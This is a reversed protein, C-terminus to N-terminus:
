KGEREMADLRAQWENWSPAKDKQKQQVQQPANQKVYKNQIKSVDYSRIKKANEEGIMQIIQEGTMEKFTTRIDNRYDENVLKAADKPDLDYGNDLAQSMYNAMRAISFPTKPINMQKLAESFSKDYEEAYKQQLAMLEKTEEQQKYFTEKEKLTKYEQEMEHIRRQEPNMQEVKIQEVLYDEVMQRIETPKLGIEPGMENVTKVFNTKLGSKFSEIKKREKAAEEFKKYASEGMQLKRIVDTEDLEQEQGNIKLKLKKKEPIAAKTPDDKKVFKGTNPDRDKGEGASLQKEAPSGNTEVSGSDATSNGLDATSNESATGESSSNNNSNSVAPSSTEM